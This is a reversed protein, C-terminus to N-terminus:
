PKPLWTVSRLWTSYSCLYPLSSSSPTRLRWSVELQKTIHDFPITWIDTGLGYKQVKCTLTLTELQARSGLSSVFKSPFMLCNLPAACILAALILADDIGLLRDFASRQVLRLMVMILALMGLCGALIPTINAQTAEPVQCVSMTLNTAAIFYKTLM